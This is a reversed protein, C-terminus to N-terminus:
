PLGNKKYQNSWLVGSKFGLNWHVLARSDAYKVAAIVVLANILLSVLTLYFWARHALPDKTKVSSTPDMPLSPLRITM